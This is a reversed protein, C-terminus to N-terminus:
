SKSNPNSLGLSALANIELGEMEAAEAADEHDHGLVHLYGHILLHMLHDALPINRAAADKAAVGHALALDGIQPRAMEDAAFSLIDTPKDKGRFQANLTQLADGNTLLVAIVGEAPQQATAAAFAQRCIADLDGCTRWNEDEVILDTQIM